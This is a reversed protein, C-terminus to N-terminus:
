VQLLLAAAIVGKGRQQKRRIERHRQKYISSVQRLVSRSGTRSDRVGQAAENGLKTMEQLEGPMKARQWIPLKPATALSSMCLLTTYSDVVILSSLRIRLIGTPRVENNIGRSPAYPKPGKQVQQGNGRSRAFM